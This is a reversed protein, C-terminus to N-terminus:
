WEEGAHRQLIMAYRWHLAPDALVIGDAVPLTRALSELDAPSPARVLRLLFLDDDGCPGPMGVGSAQGDLARVADRVDEAAIRWAVRAQVRVADLWDRNVAERQSFPLLQCVRRDPSSRRFLSSLYSSHRPGLTAAALDDLLGLPSGSQQELAVTLGVFPNEEFLRCVAAAAVGRHREPSATRLWLVCSRALDRFSEEALRRAGDGHDLDFAVQLTCDSDPCPTRHVPASDFSPACLMPADDPALSAGSRFELKDLAFDIDGPEWGAGSLLHYPPEPQWRWGAREAEARMRTGPLVQTQFVQLRPEFDLSDLFELTADLGKPSDGPLGIMLDVKAAVGAQHLANMGKRFRSPSFGRGAARLAEKTVTQLGVELRTIGARALAEARKTDIAEARLEAFIPLPGQNAGALLELFADFDPRQELSPDLLYIEEAGAEQAWAFLAEIQGRPRGAGKGRGQHYACFSCAYKCGRWLEALVMRDMEMTALGAMYPDHLRALDAPPAVGPNPAPLGPLWVESVTAPDAGALLMSFPVEGEGVVGLDFASTHAQIWSGPAFEPGGIWIRVDHIRERLRRAIWASREVNWVDLTFGVVSPNREAIADVLARDGFRRVVPDPLLEPILGRSTASGGHSAPKRRAQRGAEHQSYLFLDAAGMQACGTVPQPVAEPVPLQLLLVPRETSM